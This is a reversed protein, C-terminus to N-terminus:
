ATHRTMPGDGITEVSSAPEGSRSQSDLIPRMRDLSYRNSECRNRAWTSIRRMDVLRLRIGRGWAEECTGMPPEDPDLGGYTGSLCPRSPATTSKNKGLETMRRDRSTSRSAVVRVSRVEVTHSNDLGLGADNRSWRIRVDAHLKISEATTRSPGEGVASGTHGGLSRRGGEAKRCSRGSRTISASSAGRMERGSVSTETTGSFDYWTWPRTTPPSRNSLRLTAAYHWGNSKWSWGMSQAKVPSVPGPYPQQHEPAIRAGTGQPRNHEHEDDPLRLRCTAGVTRSRGCSLREEGCPSRRLGAHHGQRHRRLRARRGDPGPRSCSIAEKRDVVTRGNHLRPGVMWTRVLPKSASRGREM